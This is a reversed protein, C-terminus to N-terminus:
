VYCTVHHKDVEFNTLSKLHKGAGYFLDQSVNKQDLSMDSKRWKDLSTSETYCDALPSVNANKSYRFVFFRLDTSNIYILSNIKM